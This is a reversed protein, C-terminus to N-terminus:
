TYEATPDNSSIRFLENQYHLFPFNIKVARPRKSKKSATGMRYATDICESDFPLELTEFLEDLKRRLNENKEEFLGEIIM